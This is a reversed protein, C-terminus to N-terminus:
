EQKKVWYDEIVLTDIGSDKFCNVAEEPSRVIPMGKLNFSTNLIVPTDTRDKFEAIINHYFPNVEQDVTQIRSTGDTHTVAPIEPKKDELVDYVFLMYPSKENEDINFYKHADEQIVSPAFPRFSERFKVKKNIKDKMDESRPDAIISRNGLARPGWEMRDRFVAVVKGKKLDEAIKETLSDEVKEYDLSYNQLTREVEKNSYSPGYYCHKMEQKESSRAIAAGLAGGADGAAPQIWINEFKSEKRLRGNAVSNLGVGGAICLNETNTQQYLNEAQKLLIEELLRQTTAAIDKHRQKLEGDRERPEGLLQILKESWMKKSYTYGFYSQDMKYSGDDYVEIINSFEERYSPEGYSALGMVKFEGNNVMFGLYATITSYLLGISDPFTIHKIPTINDKKGEFMCNTSREGVGDVTLIAAENFPSPYFASAAHSEHHNMFEFDGTFGLDKKVKKKFRLKKGLWEPLAQSFLNYGKPFTDLSTEMIRVFKQIPKEYFVVKDIEKASLDASELCFSIANKPYSNDHKERTFREEAATAVIEGDIVICAASDHYFCSIGLVNM